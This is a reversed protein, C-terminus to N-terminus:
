GQSGSVLKEEIEDKIGQTFERFGDKGALSNRVYARIDPDIISSQLSIAFPDLRELSGVIDGEPRSTVLISLSGENHDARLEGIWSLLSGRMAKPFEDLADLIIFTKKFGKIIRSLVGKLAKTGASKRIAGTSNYLDVVEAPLDLESPRKPLQGIISLLMNELNQKESDSFTFYFYALAHDGNSKCVNEVDEIATASLVSKGCGPIGHLWLVGGRREKWDIYERGQLLWNGTGPERLALATSYNTTPDVVNLWKQIKQ